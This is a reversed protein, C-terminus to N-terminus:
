QNSDFRMLRTKGEYYSMLERAAHELGETAAEELEDVPLLELPDVEEVYISTMVVM